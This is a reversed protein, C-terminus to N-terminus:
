QDKIKEEQQMLRLELEQVQKLYRDEKSAYAHNMERESYSRESKLMDGLGQARLMDDISEGPQDFMGRRNKHTSSSQAELFQDALRASKAGQSLMDLEVTSRRLEDAMQKPDGLLNDDDEDMLNIHGQSTQIKKEIPDDDEIDEANGLM